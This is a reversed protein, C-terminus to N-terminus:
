KKDDADVIEVVGIELHIGILSFSFDKSAYTIDGVM